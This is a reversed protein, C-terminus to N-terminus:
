KNFGLNYHVVHKEIKLPFLSFFSAFNIIFFLRNRNVYEFYRHGGHLRNKNRKAKINTPRYHIKVVCTSLHQSILKFSGWCEGKREGLRGGGSGKSPTDQPEGASIKLIINFKTNCNRTISVM